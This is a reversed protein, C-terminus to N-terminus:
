EKKIRTAMMRQKEKYEISTYWAGGILTLAIGLANMGTITLNFIFVALVISLVQKINGAVTMTLASTKKNATFSVINLLFAILGNACLALLLYGDMDRKTFAIVADAEGTLWAYIVTQICALPSMRLLLDLPHLRLKGVQVLNTVITKLAALIAGLVTLVFGLTTYDYEGFTALIVGLIVPILSIFTMFSYRRGLIIFSLLVTFVPTMARIVQHFPVTVMHLSVNSMAINVTYLVSFALMVMQERYGLKAPQFVGLRALIWSGLTGFLTHIGTLTWPFGFRFMQMIAKNYLTLGLNCFFYMALWLYAMDMTHKNSAMHQLFSLLIRAM